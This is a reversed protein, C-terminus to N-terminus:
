KKNAYKEVFEQHTRNINIYANKMGNELNVYAADIMQLNANVTDKLKQYALEKDAEVKRRVSEAYTDAEEHVSTAYGDAERKKADLYRAAEDRAAATIAHDEILGAATEKAKDIIANGTKRAEEIMRDAERGAQDNALRLAEECERECAAKRKKIDNDLEESQKELSKKVKNASTTINEANVLVKNASEITEPLDRELAKALERLREPNDIQGKRTIATEKMSNVIAVLAALTDKYGDLKKREGTVSLSKGDGAPRENGYNEAMETDETLIM